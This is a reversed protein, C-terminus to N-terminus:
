LTYIRVGRWPVQIAVTGHLVSREAHAAFWQRQLHKHSHKNLCVLKKQKLEPHLVIRGKLRRRISLRMGTTLDAVPKSEINLIDNHTEICDSLIVMSYEAVPMAEEQINKVITDIFESSQENWWDEPTYYSVHRSAESEKHQDLAPCFKGMFWMILICPDRLCLVLTSDLAVFGAIASSAINQGSCTSQVFRSMVSLGQGLYLFLPSFCDIKGCRTM